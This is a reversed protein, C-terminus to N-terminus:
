SDVLELFYVRGTSDGAFFRNTGCHVFTTVTAESYFRALERPVSLDWLRLTTDYSWSLARKGDALLAGHVGTEHGTLPPGVQQGMEQDWLRLTRDNSWSLAQKGDPLLLAGYV